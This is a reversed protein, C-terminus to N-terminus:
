LPALARELQEAFPDQFPDLFTVRGLKRGHQFDESVVIECGARVATAWLMADWFSLQHRTVADIAGGLDAAESGIVPFADALRVVYNGAADPPMRGKRTLAFFTEGLAQVTLLADSLAARRILRNATDSKRGADADQAYYLINADLTLKM